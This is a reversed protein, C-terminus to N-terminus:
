KKKWFEAVQDNALVEEKFAYAGTKDSKVM